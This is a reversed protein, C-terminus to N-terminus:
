LDDGWLTIEGINVCNSNQWNSNKIILRIYRVRGITESVPFEWGAAWAATQSAADAPKIISHDGMKKWDAKWTESKWYAEDNTANKLVNSGWIEFDKPSHGTFAGAETRPWIRFRVIDALVGMEFTFHHPFNFGPANEITHLINPNATIGDWIRSLDRDGNVSTNDGALIVVKFNAKNIQRDLRPLSYERAPADFYEMSYAPLYYTSISIKQGSQLGSLVTETDKNEVRKTEKKGNIEYSIIVYKMESNSIADWKILMDGNNQKEISKINRNRLNNKYSKGLILISAERAVSFNGLDDRTIFQFAYNGEPLNLTHEIALPGSQTRNVNIVVSDARLNWYIILKSVRPDANLFCVFAVKEYGYSYYLSDLAGTYVGEGMDYYKKHIDNMGECGTMYLLLGSVLASMLILNFKNRFVSVTKKNM